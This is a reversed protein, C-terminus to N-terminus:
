SSPVSNNVTVPIVKSQRAAAMWDSIYLRTDFSALLVPLAFHMSIFLTLFLYFTPHFLLPLHPQSGFFRSRASINLSATAPDPRSWLHKLTSIEIGPRRGGGEMDVGGKRSPFAEAQTSAARPRTGGGGGGHQLSPRWINTFCCQQEAVCLCVVVLMQRHIVALHLIDGLSIIWWIWHGGRVSQQDVSM